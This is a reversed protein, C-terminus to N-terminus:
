AKRYLVTEAVHFGANLEIGHRNLDDATEPGHTEFAIVVLRDEASMQAIVEDVSPKFIGHYGFRHLTRIRKHEILKPAKGAPKNWNFATDRPNSLAYYYPTHRRHFIPRILKYLRTLEEDSIEPITITNATDM